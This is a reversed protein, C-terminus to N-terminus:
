VRNQEGPVWWRTGKHSKAWGYAAGSELSLRLLGQIRGLPSRDFPVDSQTPHGPSVNTGYSCMRWFPMMKCTKNNVVLCPPESSSVSGTSSSARHPMGTRPLPTPGPYGRKGLTSEVPRVGPESGAQSRGVQQRACLVVSRGQPISLFPFPGREAEQSFGRHGKEKSHPLPITLAVRWSCVTLSGLSNHSKEWLRSEEEREGDWSM